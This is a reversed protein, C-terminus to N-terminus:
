ADGLPVDNLFSFYLMIALPVFGFLVLWLYAPALLASLRLRSPPKTPM